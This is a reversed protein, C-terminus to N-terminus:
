TYYYYPESGQSQVGTHTWWHWSNFVLLDMNKWADAGDEIAGLNLVRGVSEKSIDVLYPTRYLFLTVDYEQYILFKFSIFQTNKKIFGWNCLYSQLSRSFWYLFMIFNQLYCTRYIKFSFYFSSFLNTTM